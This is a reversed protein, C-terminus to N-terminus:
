DGRAFVSVERRSALIAHDRTTAGASSWEAALESSHSDSPWTMFLWGNPLMLHLLGAAFARWETLAWTRVPPERTHDFYLARAVLLDFRGLQPAPGPEVTWFVREVGFLRALDGYLSPRSRLWPTLSEEDMSRRHERREAASAAWWWSMLSEDDHRETAVVDHGFQRALYAFSAPGTGIDLIALPTSTTLGLMLLDKLDEKLMLRLDLLYPKKRAFGSDAHDRVVSQFRDLGVREVFVDAWRHLEALEVARLHV